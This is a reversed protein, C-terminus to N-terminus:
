TELYGFQKWMFFRYVITVIDQAKHEVWLLKRINHFVTTKFASKRKLIIQVNVSTV